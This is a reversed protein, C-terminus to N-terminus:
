RAEAMARIARTELIRKGKRLAVVGPCDTCCPYRVKMRQGRRHAASTRVPTNPPERRQNAECGATTIWASLEPCRYLKIGNRDTM